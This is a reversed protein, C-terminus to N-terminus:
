YAHNSAHCSFLPADMNGVHQPWVGEPSPQETLAWSKDQCGQTASSLRVEGVAAASQREKSGGGSSGGMM